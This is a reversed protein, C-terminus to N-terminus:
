EAHLANWLDQITALPVPNGADDVCDGLKHEKGCELDYVWYSILDNEDNMIITLLTVLDDETLTPMSVGAYDLTAENYRSTCESIDNVLAHTFEIDKICKEFFEYTIM